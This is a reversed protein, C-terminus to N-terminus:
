TYIVHNTASVYCKCDCFEWVCLTYVIKIYVHHAYVYYVYWSCYHADIWNDFKM